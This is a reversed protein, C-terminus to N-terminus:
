RTFGISPRSTLPLHRVTVRSSLLDIKRALVAWHTYALKRPGFSEFICSRYRNRCRTIAAHFPDPFKDTLAPESFVSHQWSGVPTQTHHLPFSCTTPPIDLYQPASPPALLRKDHEGIGSHIGKVQATIPHASDPQQYGPHGYIELNAATTTGSSAVTAQEHLCYTTV